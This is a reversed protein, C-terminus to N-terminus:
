YDRQKMFTRNCRYCYYEDWNYDNFILKIEKEPHGFLSCLFRQILGGSRRKNTKM